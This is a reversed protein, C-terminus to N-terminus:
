LIIDGDCNKYNAGDFFLLINKINFKEFM